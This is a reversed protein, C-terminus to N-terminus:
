EGLERSVRDLVDLMRRSTAHLSEQLLTLAHHADALVDAKGTLDDPTQAFRSFVDEFLLQFRQEALALCTALTVIQEEIQPDLSRLARWAPEPVASSGPSSAGAMGLRMSIRSHDGGGGVAGTQVVDDLPTPRREDQDAALGRTDLPGPPAVDWAEGLSEFDDREVVTAGAGGILGVRWVGRRQHRFVAQRHQAIPAFCRCVPEPDREASHDELLERDVVGVRDAAQDEARCVAAALSQWRAAGVIRRNDFAPQAAEPIEVIGAEDGLVSVPDFLVGLVEALHRQVGDNALVLRDLLVMKAAAQALNALRHQDQVAPLVPHHREGAAFFELTRQGVCPWMDQVGGAVLDM